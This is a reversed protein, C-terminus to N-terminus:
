DVLFQVNRCCNDKKLLSVHSLRFSHIFSHIMQKQSAKAAAATDNARLLPRLGLQVKAPLAGCLAARVDPGQGDDFCEHTHCVCM